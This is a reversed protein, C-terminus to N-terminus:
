GVGVVWRAPTSSDHVTEEILISSSCQCLAPRRDVWGSGRPDLQVEPTAIARQTM